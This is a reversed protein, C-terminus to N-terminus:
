FSQKLGIRFFRGIAGSYDLPNYGIAGYTLFDSPPKSDFLNAISGFVETNKGLKWAGSVDLTTFSKIKCGAPSDSGDLLKQACDSDSQELKNSMPGRYNVNAGLRWQGMDWTTAFSIRDRPSGMCNTINCDGHTGAYNHTVGEKTIVRQTLLHTWTLTSTLHGYGGGFDWRHKVEVDLGETLSKDSNQFVVVGNLIAGIDSPALKTAPDRTVRGADVAAQPDDIVPLGTRKIQWLDATMGLKPTADWVFGFTTSQSKEPKLDPNGSQVFTPAVGKCNADITAQPLGSGALSRCRAL